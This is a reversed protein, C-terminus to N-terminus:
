RGRKVTAYAVGTWGPSASGGIDIRARVYPPYNVVGYSSGCIGQSVNTSDATSIDLTSEAEVSDQDGSTSGSQAGQLVFFTANDFSGLIQVKLTPSTGTKNTAKVGVCIDSISLDRNFITNSDAPDTTDPGTATILATYQEVTSGNPGPFDTNTSSNTLTAQAPIVMSAFISAALSLTFLKRM